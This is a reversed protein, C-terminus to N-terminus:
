FKIADLGYFIYIVNVSIILLQITNRISMKVKIEKFFPLLLLHMMIWVSFFNIYVITKIMLMLIKIPHWTTYGLQHLLGYLIGSEYLINVLFLKLFISFNSKIQISVLRTPQPLLM